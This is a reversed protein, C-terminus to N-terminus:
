ITDYKADEIVWDKGWAGTSHGGDETMVPDPILKLLKLTGKVIVQKGFLEDPWFNLGKIYIPTEDENLVVAGAKADKALGKIEVEQDMMSELDM